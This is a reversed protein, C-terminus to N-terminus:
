KSSKRRTDDRDPGQKSGGRRGRGTLQHTSSHSGSAEESEDVFVSLFKRATFGYCTITHQEFQNGDEFTKPERHKIKNVCTKVKIADCNAIKTNWRQVSSVANQFGLRLNIMKAVQPFTHSSQDVSHLIDTHLIACYEELTQM